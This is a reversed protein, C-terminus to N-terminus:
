SRGPTRNDNDSHPRSFMNAHGLFGSVGPGASTEVLFTANEIATHNKKKNNSLM